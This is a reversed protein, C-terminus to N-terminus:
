RRSLLSGRLVQSWFQRYAEGNPDDGVSVGGAQYYARRSTAHVALVADVDAEKAPRITGPVVEVTALARVTM